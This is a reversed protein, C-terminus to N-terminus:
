YQSPSLETGHLGSILGYRVELDAAFLYQSIRTRPKAISLPPSSRQWYGCDCLESLLTIPQPHPIDSRYMTLVRFLHHHPHTFRLTVRQRYPVVCYALAGRTNHWKHWRRPNWRWPVHLSSALLLPESVLRGEREM